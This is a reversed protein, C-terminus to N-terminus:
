RKQWNAEVYKWKSNPDLVLAAIYAPSEETLNYYKEMKAWRSNFMLALTNDRAYRDKGQEFQELVFDMAPLVSDLTSTFSELALTTQALMDLFDHINRLIIWDEDSVEDARVSENQHRKVYSNIAEFVPSTIAKKIMRAMSNWRTDNDRAPRNQKSLAMFEQMRQASGQIDVVINHLKGIPRHKRWEEIEKLTQKLKVPGEKEEL